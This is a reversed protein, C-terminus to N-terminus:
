SSIVYCRHAIWLCSLVVIVGKDCLITQHIYLEHLIMFAEILYSWIVLDAKKHSEFGIRVKGQLIVYFGLFRRSIPSLEDVFMNAHLSNLVPINLIGLLCLGCLVDCYGNAYVFYQIPKMTTTTFRNCIIYIYM